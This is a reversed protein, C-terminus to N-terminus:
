WERPPRPARRRERRGRREERMREHLLQRAVRKQEDTLVGQADAGATRINARMEEVLPRMAEPLPPGGRRRRERLARLTDRRQAPTLRSLQERREAAFRAHERRLRARLPANREELGRRITELRAVQEDSLGLRERHRLLMAFPRIGDDAGHMAGRPPPGPPQAPAACPAALLALALVLRFLPWKM